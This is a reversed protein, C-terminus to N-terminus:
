GLPSSLSPISTWPRSRSSPSGLVTTTVASSTRSASRSGTASMTAATRAQMSLRTEGDPDGFVREGADRAPGPHHEVLEVDQLADRNGGLEGQREPAPTRRGRQREAGGLIREPSEHGGSSGRGHARTRGREQRDQQDARGQQPGAGRGGRRVIVGADRRRTGGREEGVQAAMM